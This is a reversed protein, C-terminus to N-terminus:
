TIESSSTRMLKELQAAPYPTSKSEKQLKQFFEDMLLTTPAYQKIMAAIVPTTNGLEGALYERLRIEWQEKGFLSTIICHLLNETACAQDYSSHQKLFETEAPTLDFKSSLALGFDSLYLRKGDTLINEFHADFHMLGQTNMHKNTAKLHKDVFLVTTESNGDGKVIQASLWEHLNQPVFELFLAIHASANNLDKVRKRIAASNGWYQCYKEIDGWYNTNIDGPGSPLIRWHYMIPFNECEGTIVWNTTMIHTALERWAGFGASGVGYQYCLPLDFLNATSMFNQPLQELDTLPIKKVFVPIDDVSILTSKGGIGEHMPKADALIQKLKEKSLCALSTSIQGYLKIRQM